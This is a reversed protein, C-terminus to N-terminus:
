AVSECILFNGFQHCSNSLNNAMRIFNLSAFLRLLNNKQNLRHVQPM